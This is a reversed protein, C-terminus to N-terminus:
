NAEVCALWLARNAAATAHASDIVHVQVRLILARASVLCGLKNWSMSGHEKGLSIRFLIGCLRMANLDPHVTGRQRSLM